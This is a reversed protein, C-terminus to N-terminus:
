DTVPFSFFTFKYPPWSMIVRCTHVPMTFRFIALLVQIRRTDKLGRPAHAPVPFNVM